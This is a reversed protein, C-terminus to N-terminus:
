LIFFLSLIAGNGGYSKGDAIVVISTDSVLSLHEGHVKENKEESQHFRDIAHKQTGVIAHEGIRM